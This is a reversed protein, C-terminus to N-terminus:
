LALEDLDIEELERELWDRARPHKVALEELSSVNALDELEAAVQEPFDRYLYRSGFDYRYPRYRMGLVSILSGLIFSRYFGAADLLHGRRIEKEIIPDVIPLKLRIQELDNALKARWAEADPAPPESVGTKDFVVQHEGHRAHQNFFDTSGRKMVALDCLLWGPAGEFRYVSQSHGHWTPEPLAWINSVPAEAAFKTEVVEFVDAVHDPDVVVYADLDSWEDDAGFATSGGEWFADVYPLPRLVDELLARLSDRTLPEAM